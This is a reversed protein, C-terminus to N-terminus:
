QSRVVLPDWTRQVYDAALWKQRTQPSKACVRRLDCRFCAKENMPWFGRKAYDAFRHVLERFGDHWEDLQAATRPTHGRLFRTFGVAIQAADIIVGSPQLRYHVRTAHTYGSMQDDPSFQDFYTSAATGITAKTSKLDTPFIMDNISVIRDIHGCLLVTEGAVRIGSDYRFSLEVAPRNEGLMVTQLPDDQWQDLYWVLSRILTFRNKTPHDSFWPRGLTKDWTAQLTRAVAVDLADDHAAGHARERYYCERGEHLWIGFALDVSQQKGRWGEIISLQYYRPCTKAAGRSVSDWAFQWGPLATSFASNTQM